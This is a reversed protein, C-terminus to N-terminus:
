KKYPHLSCSSVPSMSEFFNRNIKFNSSGKEIEETSEERFKRFSLNKRDAASVIKENTEENSKDKRANMNKEWKYDSYDIPDGVMLTSEECSLKKKPAEAEELTRFAEELLISKDRM